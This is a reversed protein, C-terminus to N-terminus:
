AGDPHPWLKNNKFFCTSRSFPQTPKWSLVHRTSRARWWSESKFDSDLDDDAPWEEPVEPVEAAAAAPKSKAKAKKKPQLKAEAKRKEAAVGARAREELWHCHDQAFGELDGQLQGVLSAQQMEDDAQETM